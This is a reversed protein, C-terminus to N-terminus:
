GRFSVIKKLMASGIFIMVLGTVILKQGTATHYLPSMYIPNMITVIVAIFFPLGVLVYASMRGMATLGKVKRSFQQRQRVTEAIMDFLGALAGGIQRQITVANIVFTLNKSGIRAALDSLADDMPKGLQTETLVRRFEKAAPEAGEDVVSQIGQRFSHGAKLSAAITILLDPLQNDFQKIRSTAKISVYAIPLSGFVAFVGLIVLAPSGSVAAIFAFFVALGMCLALLEGAHLPLNARDITAQLRKVQRLEGLVRELGDSIQTRTAARSASRRAASTRVAAGGVHPELRARLRGGRRSAFWFLCALLVLVGCLASVILTGLVSYGVNPILSSPSSDSEGVGPLTLDSSAVGTGRVTAKLRLLAGPRLSTDYTLQWTRSLEDALSTYVSALQAANAAQRYSGGTQTALERLADSTFDPGSIGITYVAARAAHAAAVAEALSASSSVDRGDTVVVIARGPRDDGVLLSASRVVADYLATGSRTDVTLGALAAAADSPSASGRNLALADQGFVVIGVHDHAGAAAVLSRAASVAAALPKGRMSQSRDLALVIAKERGLNVASYGVTLNGNETLQPRAAGLPTVLTTRIAPFGSTDVAQIRVSGAVAAPAIMLAALALPLGRFVLRRRRRFRAIM